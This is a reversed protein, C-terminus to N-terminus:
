SWASAPPSPGISRWVAAAAQPKFFSNTEFDNSTEWARSRADPPIATSGYTRQLMFWDGGGETAEEGEIGPRVPTLDKDKTSPTLSLAFYSQRVDHFLSQFGTGLNADTQQILRSKSSAPSPVSSSFLGVAIPFAWIVAVLAHLVIRSRASPFRRSTIARRPM